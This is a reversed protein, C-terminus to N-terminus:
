LNKGSNDGAADSGPEVPAGPQPPPPPPTPLQGNDAIDTGVQKAPANQEKTAETIKLGAYTGSSIGLLLLINNDFDPLLNTAFAKQIFVAGFFVNFIVSQLRQVNISSGDSLIDILWGESKADPDIAVGDKGHNDVVKSVAATSVSIGIIALVSAPIDPLTNTALCISLYSAVLILTWYLLQTRSLSYYLNNDDKLVRRNLGLIVLAIIIIVMAIVWIKGIKQRVEIYTAFAAELYIKKGNGVGLRVPIIAKEFANGKLAKVLFDNVVTDMEFYIIGDQPSVKWPKTNSLQIGNIFLMKFSDIPLATRIRIGIIEKTKVSDQGSAINRISLITDVSPKKVVTDKVAVPKEQQRIVATQANSDISCLLCFVTLLGAHIIQRIAPFNSPIKM